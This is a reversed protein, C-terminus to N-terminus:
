EPVLRDIVSRRFAALYSRDAVAPRAARLSQKIDRMLAPDRRTVAAAIERGRRLAGRPPALAEALGREVAERGSLVPSTLILLLAANYGLRQPLRNTGGAGPMADYALHGDSLEADAAVVILDCALALELGGLRCAGEVCAITVIPLAEIRDLLDSTRQIVADFEARDRFCAELLDGDLGTSFLSGAGAILLCEVESGAAELEDLASAMATMTAEDIGNSAEPRDLTWTMLRDEREIRM